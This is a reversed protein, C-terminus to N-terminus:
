AIFFGAGNPGKTNKASTQKAINMQSFRLVRAGLYEKNKRQNFFKEEKQEM